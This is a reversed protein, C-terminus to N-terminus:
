DGREVESPQLREPALHARLAAVARRTHAKVADDSIGLTAATEAVSMDAFYRLGLVARQRAPLGLVAQRVALHGPVDPGHHRAVDGQLRVHAKREARRRRFWSNVLNMGVRHVWAGPADMQSVRRWRDCARALAEQAFEEAVHVDRCHLSLLGVLRPYERRCFETFGEAESM